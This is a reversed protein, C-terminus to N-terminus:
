PYRIPLQRRPVMEWRNGSTFPCGDERGRDVRVAMLRRQGFRLLIQSLGPTSNQSTTVYSRYVEKKEFPPM